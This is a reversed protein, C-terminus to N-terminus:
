KAAQNIIKLGKELTELMDAAARRKISLDASEFFLEDFRNEQHLCSNLTAALQDSFSNVLFCVVDKATKDGVQEKTVNFYATVLNNITECHLSEKTGDSEALNLQSGVLGLGGLITSPAEKTSRQNAQEIANILKTYEGHFQANRVNIFALQSAMNNKIVKKTEPLQDALLKKAIELMERNLNPYPCVTREIKSQCQELITDLEDKM